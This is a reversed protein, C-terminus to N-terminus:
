FKGFKFNLYVNFGDLANQAIELDSKPYNLIVGNTLRYSGGLATRMFNVVNVELEVGPEFVFFVDYDYNKYYDGSWGSSSITSIGGAGILIPFSVHVPKNHAIIPEFYFGGYGGVLYYDNTEVTKELNNIFGTGALGLAMRHNIVWAGKLNFLLASQDNITSYGFGFAGYGGHEIKKGAESKFVTRYENQNEQGFGASVFLFLAIFFSTQLRKMKLKKLPELLLSLILILPNCNSNNKKLVEIGFTKRKSFRSM